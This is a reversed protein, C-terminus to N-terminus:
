NTISDYFLLKTRLKDFKTYIIIIHHHHHSFLFFIFFKQSKSAVIEAAESYLEFDIVIKKFMEFNTRKLHRLM